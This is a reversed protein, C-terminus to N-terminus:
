KVVFQKTFYPFDQALKNGVLYEGVSELMECGLESPSPSYLKSVYPQNETCYYLESAKMHELSSLVLLSILPDSNNTLVCCGYRLSM